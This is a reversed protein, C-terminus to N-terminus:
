QKSASNTAIRTYLTFTGFEKKDTFPGRKEEEAMTRRIWEDPISPQPEIILFEVNRRADSRPFVTDGAYASAANGRYFPIAVHNKKAYWWYVYAWTTPVFLPNTVTTIGFAHGQAQEYTAKVIQMEDTLRMNKQVEFLVSGKKNDRNIVFVNAAVIVAIVVYAAVKMKQYLTATVYATLMVVALGVGVNIFTAKVGSVLFIIVQSFLIFLVFLMPRRNTSQRVLFLYVAILALGIIIAATISLPFINLHWLERFRFWYNQLHEAYTGSDGKQASFFSVVGKIGQAHFRLEAVLFSSLCAGLIGIGGAIYRYAFPKVRFVLLALLTIAGLYVLFIESQISLGLGVGLLLWGRKEKQLVTWLGLYFLVMAPVALAPNSLWRAYSVAEFSVMFLLMTLFTIIRNHFLKEVLYYLPVLTLLNILIMEILVARPDGRGLAYFPAILYYYLPGHFMGAIDSSPGVLKVHGHLIGTAMFADRSQDYTFLLTSLGGWLRLIIGVIVITVLVMTHKNRMPKLM